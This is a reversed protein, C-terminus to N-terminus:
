CVGGVYDSTHLRLYDLDITGLLYSLVLRLVSDTGCAQKPASDEEPEIDPDPVVPLPASDPAPIFDYVPELLEFSTESVGHVGSASVYVDYRGYDSWIGGLSDPLTFGVGFSGDSFTPVQDVFVPSDGDSVTIGIEKGGFTRNGYYGVWVLSGTIYVSDGLFYESASTEVSLDYSGARVSLSCLMLLIFLVSVKIIM